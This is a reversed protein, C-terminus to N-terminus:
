GKKAKIAKVQADTPSCGGPTTVFGSIQFWDEGELYYVVSDKGVKWVSCQNELGIVFPEGLAKVLANKLWEKPIKPSKDLIRGIGDYDFDISDVTWSPAKEDYHKFRIKRFIPASKDEFVFQHGSDSMKGSAFMGIVKDISDGLQIEDLGVPYPDGKVFINAKLAFFLEDKLTAITANLDDMKKQNINRDQGSAAQLDSITRQGASIKNLLDTVNEKLTGIETSLSEIKNDRSATMTPLVIGTFLLTMVGITGGVAVAAARIPHDTEAM